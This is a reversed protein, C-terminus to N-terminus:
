NFKTQNLKVVEDEDEVEVVEVWLVEVGFHEVEVEIVEVWVVEVGINEVEVVEVEVDM